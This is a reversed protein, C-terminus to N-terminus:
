CFPDSKIERLLWNRFLRAGYPLEVDNPYNLWYSSGTDVSVPFPQVLRGTALDEQLFGTFFLAIGQGEVAARRLAHSDDLRLIRTLRPM